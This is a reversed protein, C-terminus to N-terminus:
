RLVRWVLCSYLWMNNLDEQGIAHRKLISLIVYKVCCELVLNFLFSFVLVGGGGEWGGKWQIGGFFVMGRFVECNQQLFSVDIGGIYWILHADLM